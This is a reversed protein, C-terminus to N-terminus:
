GASSACLLAAHRARVDSTEHARVLTQLSRLASSSRSCDLSDKDGCWWARSLMAVYMARRLRLVACDAVARYNQDSAQESSMLAALVTASAHSHRCAQGARAALTRGHGGYFYARVVRFGKPHAEHKGPFRAQKLMHALVQLWQLVQACGCAQSLLRHAVKPQKCSESSFLHGNNM